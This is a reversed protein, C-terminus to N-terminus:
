IAALISTAVEWFTYLVGVVNGVVLFGAGLSKAISLGGENVQQLHSASEGQSPSPDNPAGSLEALNRAPTLILPKILLEDLTAAVGLMVTACVLLVLVKVVAGALGTAELIGVGVIHIVAAFVFLAFTIGANAFTAPGPSGWLGPPLNRTFLRKVFAFVEKNELEFGAGAVGVVLSMAAVVYCLLAGKSEPAIGFYSVPAALWILSYLLFSLSVGFGSLDGSKTPTSM